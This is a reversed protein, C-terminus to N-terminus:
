KKRKLSILTLGAGVGLGGILGYTMLSPEKKDVLPAAETIRMEAEVPLAKENTDSVVTVHIVEDQNVSDSVPRELSDNAGVKEEMIATIGMMGEPPPEAGVVAFANGISCIFMGMTLGVTILVKKM